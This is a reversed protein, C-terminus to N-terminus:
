RIRARLSELLPAARAPQGPHGPHTRGDEEGIGVEEGRPRHGEVAILTKPSKGTSFTTATHAVRMRSLPEPRSLSKVVEQAGLPRDVAPGAAELAVLPASERCLDPPTWRTPEAEKMARISTGRGWPRLTFLATKQAMSPSSAPM